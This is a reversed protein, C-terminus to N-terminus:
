NTRLAQIMAETCSATTATGSLDKTRSEPGATLVAEVAAESAQAAEGEGLHELMM